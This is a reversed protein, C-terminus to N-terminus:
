QWISCPFNRGLTSIEVVNMTRSVLPAHKIPSSTVGVCLCCLRYDIHWYAPSRVSQRLRYSSVPYEGALSVLIPRLMIHSLSNHHQSFILPRFCGQENTQTLLCQLTLSLILVLQCTLNETAITNTPRWNFRHRLGLITLLHPM